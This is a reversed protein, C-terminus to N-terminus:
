RNKTFERSGPWMDIERTTGYSHVARSGGPTSRGHIMPDTGTGFDEEVSFADPMTVMVQLSTVDDFNTWDIDYKYFM